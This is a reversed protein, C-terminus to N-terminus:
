GRTRAIELAILPVAPNHCSFCDREEAYLVLCKQLPALAREVAYRIRDPAVREPEAGTGGVVPYLIACLVCVVRRLPRRRGALGRARMARSMSWGSRSDFAVASRASSVSSSDSPMQNKRIRTARAIRPQFRGDSAM